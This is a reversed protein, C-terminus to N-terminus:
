HGSFYHIIQYLGVALVAIGALQKFYRLAVRAVVFAAAFAGALAVDSKVSHAGAYVAGILGAIVALANAMTQPSLGSGSARPRSHTQRPSTQPSSTDPVSSGRAPTSIPVQYTRPQSNMSALKKEAAVQRAYNQGGYTHVSSGGRDVIYRDRAVRDQYARTGYINPNKDPDRM